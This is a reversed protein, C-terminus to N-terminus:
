IYLRNDAIYKAVTEPVLGNISDGRKINGRIQTSSVTMIREDSIIIRNDPIELAKAKEKLQHVTSENRAAACIVCRELIGKYDRWSDLCLLMDAGMILYLEADEYLRELEKLTDITYSHGDRRLEIDSVEIKDEDKVALACMELRTEGDLLDPSVKHPPIKTPILLVRDLEALVAFHRVLEIHGSHVPNFTGGFIGLKM